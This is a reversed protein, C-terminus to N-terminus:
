RVHYGEKKLTEALKQRARGIRTEVNTVTIGLKEAIQENSYALVFRLRMVDRYTEDMENIITVIKRYGEKSIIQSLVDITIGTEGHFNEDLDVKVPKGKHKRYEDIATNRSLTVLFGELKECSFGNIESFNKALKLFSDQTAEEADQKNNLVAYAVRFMMGKYKMVIKEFKPEDAPDPLM